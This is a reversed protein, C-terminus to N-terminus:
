DGIGAPVGCLERRVADLDLIGVLFRDFHGRVPDGHRVCGAVRDVHRLGRKRNGRLHRELDVGAALGYCDDAACDCKLLALAMPLSTTTCSSGTCPVSVCLTVPVPGIGPGAM